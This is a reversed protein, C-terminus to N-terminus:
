WFSPLYWPLCLVKINLIEWIPPQFDNVRVLAYTNVACLRREVTRLFEPTQIQGGVSPWTRVRSINWVPKENRTKHYWDFYVQWAMEQFKLQLMELLWFIYKYTVAFVLINDNKVDWCPIRHTYQFLRFISNGNGNCVRKNQIQIIM